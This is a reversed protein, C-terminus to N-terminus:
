PAFHYAATAGAGFFLGLLFFAFVHGPALLAALVGGVAGSALFLLSRRHDPEEEDEEPMEGETAFPALRDAIAAPQSPRSERNKTLMELTIKEVDEPITHSPSRRSLPEVPEKLHRTVFGLIDDSPFPPTDTLM